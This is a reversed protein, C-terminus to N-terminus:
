SAKSVSSTQARKVEWSNRHSLKENARKAARFIKQRRILRGTSVIKRPSEMPVGGTITRLNGSCVCIRIFFSVASCESPEALRAASRNLKQNRYGTYGVISQAGNGGTLFSGFFLSCPTWPQKAFGGFIWQCSGPKHLCNSWEIKLDFADGAM